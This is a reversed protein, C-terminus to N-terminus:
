CHDHAEQGLPENAVILRICTLLTERERNKHRCTEKQQNSHPFKLLLSEKMKWALQIGPKDKHLPVLQGQLNLVSRPADLYPSGPAL